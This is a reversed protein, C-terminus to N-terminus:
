GKGGIIDELDVSGSGIDISGDTSDYEAKANNFWTMFADMSGFSEIFAAQEDASMNMYAEYATGKGSPTTPPNTEEPETGETPATTEEPDKGETPVTNEEPDKGETPATTEEPKKEETPATTEKDSEETTEPDTVETEEELELEAGSIVGDGVITEKAQVEETTLVTESPEASMPKKKKCSAMCLLVLLVAILIMFTRRNM